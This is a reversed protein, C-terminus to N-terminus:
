KREGLMVYVYGQHMLSPNNLLYGHKERAKTAAAESIQEASQVARRAQALEYDGGPRGPNKKGIGTEGEWSWSLEHHFEGGNVTAVSTGILLDNVGDGNWDTVYVRLWSGPFAKGDGDRRLAFLAKGPEFRHGERTKVGRFFSVAPLGKRDYSTTVLLDLVGDQDWDVVLPVANTMGLHGYDGFPPWNKIEEDTRSYIKLPKGSTDLLLERPGFKPRTKDGINESIRLQRGGTILDYDGDGDFDGFNASSYTWYISSKPDSRPVDSGTPAKQGGPDGAQDLKVGQMFGTETNRFWTVHGPEYQGTIIDKLGDNDLDVFQPTFGICCGTFISLPTGLTYDRGYGAFSFTDSFEPNERTGINKYVRIHSGTPNGREYGSSFEGILLDPRGDGDWDWVAPAAWGLGEARVPGTEGMILQPKGLRPAGPIDTYVLEPFDKPGAALSAAASGLLAAGLMAVSILKYQNFM